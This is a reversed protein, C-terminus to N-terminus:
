RPAEDPANEPTEPAEVSLDPEYIIQDPLVAAYVDCKDRQYRPISWDNKRVNATRVEVRLVTTNRFAIIDCPCSPSLARFVHYGRQMLDVAVRLEGLAGVTGSSLKNEKAWPRVDRRAQEVSKACLPSCYINFPQSPAFEQGCNACKRVDGEYRQYRSRYRDNNATQRCKTSCYKAWPLNHFFIKECVACRLESPPRRM